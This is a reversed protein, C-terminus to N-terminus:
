LKKILKDMLLLSPIFAIDEYINPIKLTILKQETNNIIFKMEDFRNDGINLIIIPINGHSIFKEIESKADMQYSTNLINSIMVFLIPEASMDIHKHNELVDYACSINTNESLLRSAIKSINYNVGSGIFKTNDKNKLLNKIKSIKTVDIKFNNLINISNKLSNQNEIINNVLGEFYDKNSLSILLDNSFKFIGIAQNVEKGEFFDKQEIFYTRLSNKGSENSNFEVGIKNKENFYIKKKFSILFNNQYKNLYKLDYRRALHFTKNIKFKSCLSNLYNISFYLITEDIYDSYFFIDKKQTINIDKSRIYSNLNHYHYVENYIKNHKNEFKTKDIFKGLEIRQTGVTITKAQHKITDIPRKIQDIIHLIKKENAKTFKSKILIKIQNLYINEIGKTFLGSELTKRIKLKSIKNFKTDILNQLYKKRNDMRLAIKYSLLQGFIVTPLFSYFNLSNPIKLNIINKKDISIKNSIILIINYKSLEKIKKTTISKKSGIMLIIVSDKIAYNSLFEIDHYPVSTYCCESLKIRIEQCASSTESDDYIMFWNKKTLFKDIENNSLNLKDFSKIARDAITPTKAIHKLSNIVFSKNPKYTKHYFYLALLYGTVIHANFTKTSPVAIEIDRGNGLYISNDVLFTIDGDRKNVIAISKAGRDRALKVYVNTDITTGSQAIVIVLTDSMDNTLYFASAESAIHPQVIIKPNDYRLVERMYRSIVVAATYCTGMGTIIIKKFKKHKIKEIIDNDINAFQEGFFESKKSNLNKVNIHSLCTRNLIAGTENIEKELFHSFGIKSIDRTTIKAEKFKSFPIIENKKGNLTFLSLKIIKNKKDLFFYYGSPVSYYYRCNEVLGYIDSSFMTSDESKGVYLGQSGSKAILIKETNNETELALAYSGILKNLKSKVFNNSLENNKETFILPVSLSDSSCSNKLKKGFEKQKTDIIEKYNYIDGNVFAHIYPISQKIKENNIIPHCNNDNVQGVSAWRTHCVISGNIIKSKNILNVFNKNAKIQSIINDANEGLYGINKSFKFIFQVNSTNDINKCYQLNKFQKINLKINKDLLLNISVGLSDRGRMELFNISNIISSLNKYFVIISEDIKKFQTKIIFNNIFLKTQKLEKELFWKIDKIKEIKKSYHIDDNLNNIVKDKDKIFTDLLQITNVVYKHEKENKLYGIFNINTKYKWALDYLENINSNSLFLKDIDIIKKYLVSYSIFNSLCNTSNFVIGSIGCM